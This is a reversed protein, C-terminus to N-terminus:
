PFKGVMGGSKRYDRLGFIDPELLNDLDALSKDKLWFIDLSTKDRALIEKYTFKRWRGEPNKIEDWTQKRENRNSPNYCEIFELLDEFRLQKKKLTHHINTRYDFDFSGKDM